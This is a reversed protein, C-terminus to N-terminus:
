LHSGMIFVLKIALNSWSRIRVRAPVCQECPAVLKMGFWGVLLWGVLWGLVLYRLFFSFHWLEM